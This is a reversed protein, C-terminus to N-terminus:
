GQDVVNAEEQPESWWVQVMRSTTQIVHMLEFMRLVSYPIPASGNLWRYVSQVTVRCATAAEQNTIDLKELLEVLKQRDLERDSPPLKM